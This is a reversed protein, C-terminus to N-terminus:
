EYRRLFFCSLNGIEGGFIFVIIKVFFFIEGIFYNILFIIVFNVVRYWYISVIINVFILEIYM